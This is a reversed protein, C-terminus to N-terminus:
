GRGARHLRNYIGGTMALAFWLGIWAVTLGIGLGTPGSHQQVQTWTAPSWTGSYPDFACSPGLSGLACPVQM